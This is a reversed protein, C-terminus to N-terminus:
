VALQYVRSSIVQSGDKYDTPDPILATMTFDIGAGVINNTAVTEWALTVQNFIQLFVTSISPALDSRGTWNLHCPQNTPYFDKFQHIMYELTASQCVYVGNVTAVDIVDVGSYNTELDNDNVPLVPEDGM